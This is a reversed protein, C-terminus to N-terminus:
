PAQPKSKVKSLLKYADTQVDEIQKDTWCEKSFVFDYSDDSYWTLTFIACVKIYQQEELSIKSTFIEAEFDDELRVLFSTHKVDTVYGDCFDIVNKM